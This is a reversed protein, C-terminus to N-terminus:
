PDPHSVTTNPVFTSSRPLKRDDSPHIQLRGLSDVSACVFTGVHYASYIIQQLVRSRHITRSSVARNCIGPGALRHLCEKRRRTARMAQHSPFPLCKRKKHCKRYKQRTGCWCPDRRGPLVSAMQSVRSDPHRSFRRLGGPLRNQNSMSLPTCFCPSPVIPPTYHPM